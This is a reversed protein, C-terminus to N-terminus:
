MQANIRRIIMEYIDLLDADTLDEFNVNSLHVDGHRIDKWRMTSNLFYKQEKRINNLRLLLRERMPNAFVQKHDTDGLIMEAIRNLKSFVESLGAYHGEEWAYDFAREALSHGTLGVEEIADLRFEQQKWASYKNYEEKDAKYLEMKQDWEDLENAYARHEQASATAKPNAPKTPQKPYEIPNKYKSYDM